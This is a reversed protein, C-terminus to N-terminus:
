AREYMRLHPVSSHSLQQRAAWLRHCAEKMFFLHL